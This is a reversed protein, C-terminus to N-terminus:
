FEIHDDVTGWPRIAQRVSLLAGDEGFRLIVYLVAAEPATLPKGDDDHTAVALTNGEATLQVNLNEGSCMRYNPAFYEKNKDWDADPHYYVSDGTLQGQYDFADLTRNVYYNCDADAPSDYKRM